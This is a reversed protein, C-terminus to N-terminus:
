AKCSRNRPRSSAIIARCFTSRGGDAVVVRIPQGGSDSLQQSFPSVDAIRKRSLEYERFIINDKLPNIAGRAGPDQPDAVGGLPLVM